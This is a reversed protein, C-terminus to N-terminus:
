SAPKECSNVDHMLSSSTKVIQSGPNNSTIELNSKDVQSFPM